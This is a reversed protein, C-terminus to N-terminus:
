ILERWEQGAQQRIFPARLTHRTVKGGKEKVMDPTNLGARDIAKNIAQTCCGREQRVKSEFVYRGDARRETQRRQSVVRLRATM